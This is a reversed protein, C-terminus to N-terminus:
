THDGLTGVRLSGNQKRGTIYGGAGEFGDRKKLNGWWRVGCVSEKAGIRAVDRV